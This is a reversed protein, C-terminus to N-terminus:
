AQEFCNMLNRFKMIGGDITIEGTGYATVARMRSSILERFIETTLSVMVEYSPQSEHFTVVAISNRITIKVNEQSDTFAFLISSNVNGCEETRFRVPLALFLQRIPLLKIADKRNRDPQDIKIEAAEEFASTLYYNRGCASTQRAGLSTLADIKLDKADINDPKITLVYSSLELAWQFDKEKYAQKATELLKGAGVLKLMRESKEKFTLPQLDVPDGSFWGLYSTFVGKVSWATTGYYERLFPHAAIHKPLKVKRVIEESTMGQNIYRVTQDHIYQIADRYVTLTERINQKGVLPRTHSPVLFEVDYSLMLDLSNVWHMLDRSPTGRIAYLNPFSKYIDDACLLVKKDPIWVGIQDPTEGPIHLITM